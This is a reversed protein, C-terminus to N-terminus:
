SWAGIRRDIEALRQAAMVVGLRRKNTASVAWRAVSVLTSDPAVVAVDLRQDNLWLKTPEPVREGVLMLSCTALSQRPNIHRIMVYLRDFVDDTEVQDFQPLESVYAPSSLYVIGCYHHATAACVEADHTSIPETSYISM